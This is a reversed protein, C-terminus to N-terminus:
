DMHNATLVPNTLTLWPGREQSGATGPEIPEAEFVCGPRPRAPGPVLLWPHPIFGRRGAQESWSSRASM